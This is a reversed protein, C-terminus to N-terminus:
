VLLRAFSCVLLRCHAGCLHAVNSVVAGLGDEEEDELLRHGNNADGACAFGCTKDCM